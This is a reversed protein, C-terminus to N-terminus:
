GLFAYYKKMKKEQTLYFVLFAISVEVIPMIFWIGEVGMVRPLVYAIISFVIFTKSFAIMASIKGNSLATFMASGFMNYGVFLFGFTFISLGQVALDYAPNGADFFISVLFSKGLFIMGVVIPSVILLTNLAYKKTKKLAELNKAGYYYSILPSTGLVLGFFSNGVFFQIYLIVSIAALGDNGAHELCLLNFVLAVFGISLESVMESSGNFIVSKLFKFDLSHFGISFASKPSKFYISAYILSIIIGLLTALGAGAVGMDFIAIFLFDLIINALGGIITMILSIKPSGEARLFGALEMKAIIFPFTIFTFISYLNAYEWLESNVGLRELIFGKFLFALVSALLGFVISIMLLNSVYKSATKTDKEGLKMSVLAGGGAAFMLGVAFIISNLPLILNVAALANSGVYSSIFYGDVIQYASIFALFLISPALFRLYEKLNMEKKFNM